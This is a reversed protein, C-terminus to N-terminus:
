VRFGLFIHRRIEGWLYLLADCIQAGGWACLLVYFLCREVMADDGEDDDDDDDDDDHNSVDVVVPM